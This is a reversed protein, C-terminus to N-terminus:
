PVGLAKGIFAHVVEIIASPSQIGFLGTIYWSQASKIREKKIEDEIM